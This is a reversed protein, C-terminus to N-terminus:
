ETDFTSNEDDIEITDNKMYELIYDSYNVLLAYFGLVVFCTFFYGLSIFLCMSYIVFYNQINGINFYVYLVFLIASALIGLGISIESNFISLSKIFSLFSSFFLTFVLLNSGEIVDDNKLRFAYILCLTMLLSVLIKFGITIFAFM